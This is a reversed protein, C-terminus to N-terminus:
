SSLGAQARKYAKYRRVYTRTAQTADLGLLGSLQQVFGRTYVEAPLSGFNEEEIANLHSTSIKTKQSIEQLEIGQSERVRRLLEGTYETEAHIEHALQKKLMEREAAIAEGLEPSRPSKQLGSDPFFSLDYARRRVPDLL